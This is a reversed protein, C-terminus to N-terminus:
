SQDFSTTSYRDRSYSRVHARISVRGLPVSADILRYSSCYSMTHAM